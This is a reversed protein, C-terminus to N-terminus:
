LHFLRPSETVLTLRRCYSSFLLSVRVLQAHVAGETWVQSSDLPSSDSQRSKSGRLGTFLGAFSWAGTEEKEPVRNETSHQIIQSPPRPLPEGSLFRFLGKSTDRVDEVCEKMWTISEDLTVESAMAAKARAWEILSDFYTLKPPPSPSGPPRGQVYFELRM